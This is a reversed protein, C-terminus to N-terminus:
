RAAPATLGSGHGFASRTRTSAGSAPSSGSIPSCAGQAPCPPRRLPGRSLRGATGGAAPRARSARARGPRRSQRGRLLRVVGRLDQSRRLAAGDRRRAGGRCPHARRAPPRQAGSLHLLQGTMRLHVVLVADDDLSLLLFKGRRGRQPSGDAGRSPDDARRAVPAARDPARAGPGRRDPARRGRGRAGPSGDRSRSARAGIPCPRRGAPGRHDRARRRGRCARRDEQLYRTGRGLVEGGVTVEAFFVKAHDPGKDTVQTRRSTSTSSRRWSRCGTRRTASGARPPSAQSRTRRAPRRRLRDRGRARPLPLGVAIIAELCDALISEKARGGSTEEGKGLLVAEGVGLEAAVPALAETSVVSARLRALDGEPLDPFARYLHDAVVLGLVADGLLELRENSPRGGWEACYSRHSLAQHLLDGEVPYERLARSLKGSKPQPEGTPNSLGGRGERERLGRRRPVTRLDELDEDDIRFGPLRDSLEEELAEVLEILALSDANLDDAFSSSESIESIDIELIEALQSRVLDLVEGRSMIAGTTEAM